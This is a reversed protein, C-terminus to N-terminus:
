SNIKWSVFFGRVPVTVRATGYSWTCFSKAMQNLVVILIKFEVFIRDFISVIFFNLMAADSGPSSWTRPNWCLFCRPRLWWNFFFYVVVDVVVVVAIVRGLYYALFFSLRGCKESRFWVFYNIKRLKEDWNIVVSFWIARFSSTGRGQIVFRM